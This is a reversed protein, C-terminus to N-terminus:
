NLQGTNSPCDLLEYSKAGRDKVVFNWHHKSPDEGSYREIIGIAIAKSVGASKGAAEALKMKTVIGKRICNQIANVVNRDSKLQDAQKLLLVDNINCEEVSMVMRSYSLDSAFEYRYSVTDAVNGRRKFNNFEVTRYGHETSVVDLTYACDFDDVVDTTGCYVSKGKSDPKKNTHALAVVTGGKAIFQRILKNFQSSESKDMLSVFKKLTDLVIMVGKANDAQIMEDLLSRFQKASFNQYGEALLHFGYEEAIQLKEYIGSASDDVNLYYLNAPQIYGNKVADVCLSLAILTKGTNPAAYIVTAQGLLAINGLFPKCDMVNKEVLSSQGMLSFKTLPNSTVNSPEVIETDCVDFCETVNGLMPKWDIKRDTLMKLLTALSVSSGQYNDFSKWKLQIEQLGKYKDGKSSWSNAIALGASSGKTEQYIVMLTRIWDIYSVDPDLLELVQQLRSFEQDPNVVPESVKILERPVDRGNHRFTADIFDQNVVPLEDITDAEMLLIEKGTSPPLIVMSRGTKVDIRSPYDATSHSDQKAFANEAKRYYHHEGKSTKVVLTPMIDFAQEIQRLAVTSEPTDSDLVIIDDGVIFGLEHEPHATWYAKITEPSLNELWDDWKVATIKKGPAIPIVRFGFNYWNLASESSDLPEGAVPLEMCQQDTELQITM